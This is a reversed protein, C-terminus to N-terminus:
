QHVSFLGPIYIGKHVHLLTYQTYYVPLHISYIYGLDMRLIVVGPTVKM